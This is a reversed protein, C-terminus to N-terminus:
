AKTAESAPPPPPRHEGDLGTEGPSGAARSRPVRCGPSPPGGRGAGPIHSVPRGRGPGASTGPGRDPSGTVGPRRARTRARPGAPGGPRPPGVPDPAERVPVRPGRDTLLLGAGSQSGSSSARCAANFPAQGRGGTERRCAVRFASTARRASGGVCRTSRGARGPGAPCPARVSCPPPPEPPWPAPGQSPPMRASGPRCPPVFCPPEPRRPRSTRRLCRGAPRM